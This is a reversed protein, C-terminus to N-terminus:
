PSPRLSQVFSIVPLSSQPTFLKTGLGMASQAEQSCSLIHARVESSRGGHRGAAATSEGLHHYHVIHGQFLQDTYWLSDASVDPRTWHSPELLPSLHPPSHWCGRVAALM